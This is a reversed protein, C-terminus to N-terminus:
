KQSQFVKIKNQVNREAQAVKKNIISYEKNLKQEVEKYQLQFEERIKQM